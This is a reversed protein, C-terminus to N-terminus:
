LDGLCMQAILGQVFTSAEDKNFYSHEVYGDEDRSITGKIAGAEILAVIVSFYWCSNGFPRKGSFSDQEEWLTSLLKHFYERITLTEDIDDAYFKIDLWHGSERIIEPVYKVGNIMVDM